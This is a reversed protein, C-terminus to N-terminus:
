TTEKRSLLADQNKNRFQERLQVKLVKGMPNRPLADVPFWHRPQAYDALRDRCFEALKQFDVAEGAKPVVAAAVDEGLRNHPVAFVAAEKVTPFQYLVSEVAVSSIKLGGRNIIDKKRDTFTLYGDGDLRGVDGTRVARGSFALASAEANRFYGVAVGPSEIVIEGEEGCPVRAGADDVVRIDCYPMARGTAGMKELMAEPPLVVGTPGSETLGYIQVQEIEPWQAAIRRIVEPPMASGGYGIRRVTSLDYHALGKEAEELMFHVVSPVGHYFTSQEEAILRLRGANDLLQEFVFGGGQVWSSMGGLNLASSTFFPWGGQYLDGPRLQLARGCCLGAGIMTSHSHMVAKARATTGSTFLLCGLLDADTAERLAGPDPGHTALQGDALATGTDVTLIQKGAGLRRLKETDAAMCVVVAPEVLDLAHSLEPEAYRTNLPAAAAGIFAAGLAVLFCELGADNTLFVAVRDGVSVGAAQLQAGVVRSRAVLDVYTLKQRGGLASHASLATQGPAHEARDRLLQPLTMSLLREPSTEMKRFHAYDGNMILRGHHPVHFGAALGFRAQKGYLDRGSVPCGHVGALQRTPLGSIKKDLVFPKHSLLRILM